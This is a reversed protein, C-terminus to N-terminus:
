KKGKPPEPEPGVRFVQINELVVPTRPKDNADRPVRAIKGVLNLGDVVQGFITHQQNLHPTPVETIFFQTSATKPGANAMALMGAASFDLSSKSWEDPIVFGGDGTGTGMPDGGQIMFGPIVRHFITGNYLPTNKVQGTRPDKWPKTGMALSVFSRVTEPSEKEFLRVTIAGMSTNFTAYLGNKHGKAQEPTAQPVSLPTQASMFAALLLGCFLRTM